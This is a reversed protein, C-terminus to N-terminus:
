SLVAAAPCALLSMFFVEHSFLFCSIPHVEYLVTFEARTGRNYMGLLVSVRFLYLLEEQLAKGLLFYYQLELTVVM